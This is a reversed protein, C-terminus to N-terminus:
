RFNCVRLSPHIPVVVAAVKEGGDSPARDDPQNETGKVDPMLTHAISDWWEPDSAIVADLDIADLDLPALDM